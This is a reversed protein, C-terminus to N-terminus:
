PSKEPCGKKLEACTQSLVERKFDFGKMGEGLAPLTTMFRGAYAMGAPSELFDAMSRLQDATFTTAYVQALKDVVRATGEAQKAKGIAEVRSKEAPTLDGLDHEIRGIKSAADMQVFALFDDHRAVKRAAALAEATPKPPAGTEAAVGFAFIAIITAACVRVVPKIM